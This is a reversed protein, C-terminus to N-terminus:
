ITKARGQSNRSWALGVLLAAAVITWEIAASEREVDYVLQFERQRTDRRQRGISVVRTPPMMANVLYVSADRHHDNRYFLEHRGASRDAVAASAEIRIVGMGAHMAAVAPVHVGTLTPPLRRGDLVLAIEALVTNAYTQAEGPAIRGDNDRDILAVVESAVSVGPTLDLELAIRERAVSIRSAQLYEDLRHASSVAPFALLIALLGGIIAIM